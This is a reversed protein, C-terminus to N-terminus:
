EENFLSMALLQEMPIISQFQVHIVKRPDNIYGMGKEQSVVVGKRGIQVVKPFSVALSPNGGMNDYEKGISEEEM